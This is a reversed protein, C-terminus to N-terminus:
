ITYLNYISIYRALLEKECSPTYYCIEGNELIINRSRKEIKNIKSLNVVESRNCRFLCESFSTLKNLRANFVEKRNGFCVEIKHNNPVSKACYIEAITYTKYGDSNRFILKAFDSAVVIRRIITCLVGKFYTVFEKDRSKILMASTEIKNKIIEPYDEEKDGLLVLKSRYLNDNIYKTLYLGSDSIANKKDLVYIDARKREEIKMQSIAKELSISEVEAVRDYHKEFIMNETIEYLKIGLEAELGVLKIRIM